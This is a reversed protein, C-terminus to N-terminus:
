GASVLVVGALIVLSGILRQRFGAEHFTARGLFVTIPGSVRKLAVVYAALGLEFAFMLSLSAGAVLLGSVGLLMLVSGRRLGSRREEKGFVVMPTLAAAIATMVAASWFPPSTRLVGIKDISAAFAGVIAAFLILRPGHDAVIARFPALFSRDELDMYLFYSGSVIVLVGAAGTLSPTEGLVFPSIILLFMPTTGLLPGAVSLDTEGLGRIMLVRLLLNLLVSLSFIFLVMSGIGPLDGRHLVVPWLAAAAVLSSGWTIAYVDVESTVRKIVAESFAFLTASLLSLAIWGM